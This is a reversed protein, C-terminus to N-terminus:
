AANVQSQWFALVQGALWEAEVSAACELEEAEKPTLHILLPEHFVGAEYVGKEYVREKEVGTISNHRTVVFHKAGNAIHAAIRALPQKKRTKTRERLHEADVKANSPQEPWRWDVLSDATVFFDFAAYQDDSASAIRALDHELKLVLDQPSRLEGFHYATSGKKM